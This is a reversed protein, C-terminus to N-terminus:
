QTETADHITGLVLESASDVLNNLAGHGPNMPNVYTIGLLYLVLAIVLARSITM